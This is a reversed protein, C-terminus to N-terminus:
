FSVSPDNCFLHVSQQSLFTLKAIIHTASMWIYTFFALHFYIDSTICIDWETEMELLFPSTFYLSSVIPKEQTALGPPSGLPGLFSHAESRRRFHIGTMLNVFKLFHANDMHCDLKFIFTCTFHWSILTVHVSTAGCYPSPRLHWKPPNGIFVCTDRRVRCPRMRTLNGAVNKYKMTCCHGTLSAM